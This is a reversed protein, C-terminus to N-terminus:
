CIIFSATQLTWWYHPRDLLLHQLSHVSPKHAHTMSNLPVILQFVRRMLSIADAWAPLHWAPCVLSAACLSGM